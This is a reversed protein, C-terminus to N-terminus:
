PSTVSRAAQPQAQQQQRQQQQQQQLQQALTPVRPQLVAKTPGRLELKGTAHDYSMSNARLEAAGYQVLVPQPAVLRDLLLYAQLSASRMILPAGSRDSSLVEAGDSLLLESGDALGQVRAARAHTVRGDPTYAVIRAQDIEIRDNDPFHRLEAGQIRLKMAGSASFREMTFGTMVADPETTPLATAVPSPPRPSNKVLWWTALALVAMLLLPLYGSLAERLRHHWARPVRATPASQPLGLSLPVEPLDPLHLEV